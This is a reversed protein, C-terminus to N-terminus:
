ADGVSRGQKNDNANPVRESFQKLWRGVVIATPIKRIAMEKVMGKCQIDVVNGDDYQGQCWGWVVAGDRMDVVYLLWRSGQGGGCGCVCWLGMCGM